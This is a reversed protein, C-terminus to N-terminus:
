ATRVAAVPDVRSMRLIPFLSAALSLVVAGLPVWLLWPGATEKPIELGSLGELARVIVPTLAAGLAAGVVGGLIGVIASEALVMGAIQRTSTGLARLVGLEKTRELASLMLGNLLGVAALVATLGLIIDFLGFDRDLDDLHAELLAPGSYLAIASAPPAPERLAAKVSEPDAGPAIVIACDTVNEVDLCFARRSFADGVVGYLREDPHPFYGYADSVALVKLGQVAGAANAVHVVDGKRYGLHRALARSLILGEGRELAPVLDPADKCPGYRALEGPRMGLLLFPVYSRVSGNEIAAAGPIQEIKQRLAALPTPPMREVYVKHVLAEQAWVVIEARLSRTMGKLGVFASAVLAIAAASAAVRTGSERIGFSAMRGSFTWVRQLTRALANSVGRLLSPLLLPVTVLVALLGVAALVAGILVGQAEGVVPVIVFYLGPLVVALLLAAMAHFGRLSRHKEGAEGRLAAVPSARWARALPYVSGLLAVAVGLAALSLVVAWPVDFLRIRHGSGLTTIGLVLLGKALLLGLGVGVVTAAAAIVSAEVLFVAAIRGRSVGLAHLTAIERVREVLAISLTHFIVYLGLVLALLGAMRVGNRFAREQAAAGVIVSKNLEYSFSRALSSKLREVDIRPDQRVWFVEDITAGRYLERGFGIDVVVVMGHSRKGLKERALVGVVEFGQEVPVDSTEAPDLRRIEGDVCGTRPARAPRALFVQDGVALGLKAFLEAGVLAQRAASGPDLPRGEAVSVAQLRAASRAELAFLRASVSDGGPARRAVVENQFIASVGAVGETGELDARADRVGPAPRVELAPKWDQLGPMSLGLVTNHDLTFVGIAIAIGLGVGLIALITRGPRGLLSRGAITRVLTM